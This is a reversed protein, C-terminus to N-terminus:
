REPDFLQKLTNEILEPTAPKLLHADFGAVRSRARDQDSAYATIAVLRIAHKPYRARIHHALQYGDLDPMGIDLFVIDPKHAGIATLANMPETTFRADCGIVELLKALSEANDRNDDVVLARHPIRGPM